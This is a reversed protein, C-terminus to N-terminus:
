RTMEAIRAAALTDCLREETYEDLQIGADMLVVHVKEHELTLWAAELNLEADLIIERKHWRFEGFAKASDMLGKVRRVTVKGTPFHITKPIPPLKRRM